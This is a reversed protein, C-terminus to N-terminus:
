DASEYVVGTDWREFGATEFLQVLQENAQDVAVDLINVLQEKLYRSMDLLLSLDYDHGQHEDAVWIEGIGAARHGWKPIYLDLGFVECSALVDKSTKDILNFQVADLRGLRTVWWWTAGDSPDVPQLTTRRRNAVLNRNVPDRSSKTLDRQYAPFKKTARWGVGAAFHQRKYM